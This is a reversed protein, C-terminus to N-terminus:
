HAAHASAAGAPQADIWKFYELYQRIEADTLNQNPMPVNNYEKLMAQAAADTALMKEPSKLWQAHAFHHDVM